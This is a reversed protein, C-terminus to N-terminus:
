NTLKTTQLFDLTNLIEGLRTFIEFYYISLTKQKGIDLLASTIELVGAESLMISVHNGVFNFIQM